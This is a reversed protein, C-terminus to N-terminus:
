QDIGRDQLVGDSKKFEGTQKDITWEKTRAM